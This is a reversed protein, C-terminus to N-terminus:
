DIEIVKNPNMRGQNQNSLQRQNGQQRQQNTSQPRSPVKAIVPIPNPAVASPAAAPVSVPSSAVDRVVSNLKALLSEVALPSAIASLRMGLWEGSTTNWVSKLALDLDDPAAADQNDTRQIYWYPDGKRPKLKVEFTVKRLPPPSGSGAVSPQTFDFRIFYWDVARALIYCCREEDESLDVWSTEMADLGRLLPLTLPMFRAVANFGHASDNLIMTFFDVIRVLPDGETKLDLKIDNAMGFDIEALYKQASSSLDAELPQTAYSFSIKGLSISECELTKHHTQLVQVYDVLREVRVAREILPQIISEGVRSKIKFAISGSPAHWAIDRDVLENLGTMSTSLPVVMRAETVVLTSDEAPLIQQPSSTGQQALQPSQSKVELGQFTIRVIDKAWPKRTRPSVNQSPLMESLRAYISPLTIGKSPMQSTRLVPSVRQSHLKQSNSFGSLLAAAFVNLTWM